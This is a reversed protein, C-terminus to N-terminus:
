VVTHGFGHMRPWVRHLKVFLAWSLLLLISLQVM